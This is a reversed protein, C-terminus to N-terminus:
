REFLPPNTSKEKKETFLSEKSGDLHRHSLAVLHRRMQVVAHADDELVRPGEDALELGEVFVHVEDEGVAFLEPLQLSALGLPDFLLLLSGEAEDQDAALVHNRHSDFARRRSFLALRSDGHRRSLRTAAHSASCSATDWWRTSWTKLTRHAANATRAWHVHSGASAPVATRGLAVASGRHTATRRRAHAPGRRRTVSGM